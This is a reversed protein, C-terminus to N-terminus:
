FKVEEANPYNNLKKIAPAIEYPAYDNFVAKETYTYVEMRNGNEDFAEVEAYYGWDPAGTDDYESGLYSNWIISLSDGEYTREILPMDYGRYALKSYGGRTGTPDEDAWTENYNPASMPKWDFSCDQDHDWYNTGPLRTVGCQPCYYEGIGLMKECEVYDKDRNQSYIPLYEGHLEDPRGCIGPGIWVYNLREHPPTEFNDEYWGFVKYSIKLKLSAAGEIKISHVQPNLVHPMNYSEIFALSYLTDTSDWYEALRLANPSKLVKVAGQHRGKTGAEKLEGFHIRLADGIDDLRGKKISLRKNYDTAM